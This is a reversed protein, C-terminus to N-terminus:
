TGDPAEPARIWDGSQTPDDAIDFWRRLGAAPAMLDSPDIANRVNKGHVVMLWACLTDDQVTPLERWMHSHNGSMASRIRGAVPKEFMTLFASNPKWTLYAKGSPEDLKCGRPFNHLLVDRGAAHFDKAISAHRDIVNRNLGDDSDLRTTIVVDVSPDILSTLGPRGPRVVHIRKDYAILRQEYEDEFDEHVSLLWQFDGNTQGQMTPLCYREFLRLRMELWNPPFSGIFGAGSTKVAFRTLVFHQHKL